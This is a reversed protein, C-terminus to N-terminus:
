LVILSEAQYCIDISLFFCASFMIVELYNGEIHNLNETLIIQLIIFVKWM